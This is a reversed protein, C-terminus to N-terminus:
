FIALNRIAFKQIWGLGLSLLNTRVKTRFDTIILSVIVALFTTLLVGMAVFSEELCLMKRPFIIYANLNHFTCSPNFSQIM